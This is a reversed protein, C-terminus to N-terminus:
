NAIKSKEEAMKIALEELVASLTKGKDQFHRTIYVETKSSSEQM